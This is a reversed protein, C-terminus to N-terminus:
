IIGHTNEEKSMTILLMKEFAVAFRENDKSM